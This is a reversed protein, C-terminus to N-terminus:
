VQEISEETINYRKRLVGLLHALESEIEDLSEARLAHVRLEM